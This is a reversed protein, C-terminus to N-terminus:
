KFLLMQDNYFALYHLTIHLVYHLVLKVSLPLKEFIAGWYRSFINRILNKDSFYPQYISLNYEAPVLYWRIQVANDKM